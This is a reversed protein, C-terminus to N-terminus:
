AGRVPQCKPSYITASWAVNKGGYPVLRTKQSARLCMVLKYACGRIITTRSRQHRCDDELMRRRLVSMVPTDAAAAIHQSFNANVLRRSSIGSPDLSALALSGSGPARRTPLDPRCPTLACPRTACCRWAVPNRHAEARQGDENRQGRQRPIHWAAMLALCSRISIKALGVSRPPQGAEHNTIKSPETSSALIAAFLAKSRPIQGSASPKSIVSWSDWICYLHGSVPEGGRSPRNLRPQPRRALNEGM